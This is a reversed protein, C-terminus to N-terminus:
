VLSTRNAHVRQDQRTFFIPVGFELKERCAKWVTAGHRARRNGLRHIDDDSAPEEAM